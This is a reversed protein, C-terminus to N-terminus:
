STATGAGLVDEVTALDIGPLLNEQPRLTYGKNDTAGSFNCLLAAKVISAVNVPVKSGM